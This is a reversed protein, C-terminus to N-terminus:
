AHTVDTLASVYNFVNYPVIPCLRFLTIIKFGHHSIGKNMARLYKYHVFTPKLCEYFLGRSVLFALYGGITNSIVVISYIIFYGILKGYILGYIYSGLIALLTGPIMLPVLIINFIMFIFYGLVPNDEIWEMYSQLFKNFEKRFFVMVVVIAIIVLVLMLGSFFKL